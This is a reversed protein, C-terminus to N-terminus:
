REAAGGGLLIGGAVAVGARDLSLEDSPPRV